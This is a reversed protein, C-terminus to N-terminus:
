QSIRVMSITNLVQPQGGSRKNYRTITTTSTNLGWNTWYLWDELTDLSAPHSLSPLQSLVVRQNTGDFNSSSLSSLRVDLWYIRSRVTDISLAAPWLLHSTVIALRNEGDLDAREIRALDGLDSWFVLGSPPFVAIARPNEIQGPTLLDVM